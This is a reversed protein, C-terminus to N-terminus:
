GRIAAAIEFRADLGWGDWQGAMVACRETEAKVLREIEATLTDCDPNHPPRRDPRFDQHWQCDVIFGHAIERPTETMM